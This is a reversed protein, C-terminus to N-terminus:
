AGDTKEEEEPAPIETFEGDTDDGKEDVQDNWTGDPLRYRGEIPAGTAERTAPFEAPSAPNDVSRAVSVEEGALQQRRIQSNFQATAHSPM